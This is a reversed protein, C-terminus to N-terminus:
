SVILIKQCHHHYFHYDTPHINSYHLHCHQYHNAIQTQNHFHHHLYYHEHHHSFYPNFQYRLLLHLRNLMPTPPHHLYCSSYNFGFDYDFYVVTIGLNINHPAHFQSQHHHLPLLSNNYQFYYYHWEPYYNIQFYQCIM